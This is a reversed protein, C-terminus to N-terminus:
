LDSLDMDMEMSKTALYQNFELNSTTFPVLATFGQSKKGSEKGCLWSSRRKGLEEWGMGGM